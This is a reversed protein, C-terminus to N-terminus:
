SKGKMKASKKEKMRAKKFTKLEEQDVAGDKNQDMKDFMMEHHKNFESQTIKGDKDDDMKKLMKGHKDKGGMSKASLYMKDKSLTYSWPLNSNKWGNIVLKGQQSGSPAPDGEFGDFVSYVQSYGANTLADAAKASRGGSRCMVLVKDNKTLGKQLLRDTVEEVFRPNPAMAFHNGLDNWQMKKGFFKLPVNADAIEPMGIFAVEPSTRVDIFLVKSGQKQMLGYAEKANFYLGAKTRKYEPLQSSTISGALVVNQSLFLIVLLQYINKTM